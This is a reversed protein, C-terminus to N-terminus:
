TVGGHAQKSPAIHRSARRQTNLTGKLDQRTTFSEYAPPASRERGPVRRAVCILCSRFETVPFGTLKGRLYRVGGGVHSGAWEYRVGVGVHSEARM